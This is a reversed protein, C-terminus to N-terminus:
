ELSGGYNGGFKDQWGEFSRHDAAARACGLWSLVTSVQRGFWPDALSVLIALAIAALIFYAM